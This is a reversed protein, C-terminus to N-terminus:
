SIAAAGAAGLTGTKRSGGPGGTPAATLNAM